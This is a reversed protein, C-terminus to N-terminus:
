VRTFMGADAEDPLEGEEIYNYGTQVAIVPIGLAEVLAQHRESQFIFGEGSGGGNAMHLVEEVGSTNAVGFVRCLTSADGGEPAEAPGSEFYGPSSSYEDVLRGNDHLSYMLLDDDHNLVALAACRLKSSLSGALKRLVEIDQDESEKDYVVVCGGQAQSVFADRHLEDLAAIVDDHRDTRLTINTYFSGM